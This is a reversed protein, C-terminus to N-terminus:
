EPSPGSDRHSQQTKIFDVFEDRFGIFKSLDNWEPNNNEVLANKWERKWKKLQKERAIAETIQEFQEFYVLRNCAYKNTFGPNIKAKHETIRRLINNTVGIYLSRNNKNTLFYVFGANM